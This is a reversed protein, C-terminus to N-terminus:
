ETANLSFDRKHRGKQDGSAAPEPSKCITFAFREGNHLCRTRSFPHLKGLLRSGM